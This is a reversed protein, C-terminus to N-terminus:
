TRYGPSQGFDLGYNERWYEIMKAQVGHNHFIALLQRVLPDGSLCVSQYFRRYLHMYADLFPLFIHCYM